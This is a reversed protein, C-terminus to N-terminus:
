ILSVLVWQEDRLEYVIDSPYRKPLLRATWRHMPGYEIWGM